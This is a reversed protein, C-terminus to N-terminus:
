VRLAPEIGADITSSTERSPVSGMLFTEELRRFLTMFAPVVFCRNRRANSAPYIIEARELDHLAANVASRSRGIKLMLYPVNFEPTAPLIRLIARHASDPRVKGLKSEWADETRQIYRMISRSTDLGILVGQTAFNLFRTIMAQVDGDFSVTKDRYPFLISAHLDPQEAALLAIPCVMNRFLGRRYFVMQCLLRGMHDMHYDFPAISEFTLHAVVTQVFASAYDTNCFRLLRKMLPDIESPEPPAYLVHGGDHSFARPLTAVRYGTSPLAGSPESASDVEDCLGNLEGYLRLLFGEDIDMGPTVADKVEFLCRKFALAKKISADNGIPEYLATEDAKTLAECSEQRYIDIFGARIGAIRASALADLTALIDNLVQKYRFFYVQQDFKALGCEVEYVQSMVGPSALYRVGDLSSPSFVVTDGM